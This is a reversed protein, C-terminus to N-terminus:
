SCKTPRGRWRGRELTYYLALVETRLVAEDDEVAGVGEGVGGRREGEHQLVEPLRDDDRAALSSVTAIELKLMISAKWIFHSCNVINDFNCYSIIHNLFKLHRFRPYYHNPIQHFLSADELNRAELCAAVAAVIEHSREDEGAVVVNGLDADVEAVLEHTAVPGNNWKM